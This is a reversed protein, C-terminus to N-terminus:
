CGKCLYQRWVMDRELFDKPYVSERWGNLDRVGVNVDIGVPRLVSLPRPVSVADSLAVM